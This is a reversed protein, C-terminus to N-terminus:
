RAKPHSSFYKSVGDVSVFADVDKAPIEVCFEEELRAWLDKRALSDFGLSAFNADAGVTPPVSRVTKKMVNMVRETVETMPLFAGSPFPIVATTSALRRLVAIRQGVGHWFM